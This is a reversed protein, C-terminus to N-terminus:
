RARDWVTPAPPRVSKPPPHEGVDQGIADTVRVVDSTWTAALDCASRLRDRYHPDMYYRASSTEDLMVRIM